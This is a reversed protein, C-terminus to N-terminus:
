GNRVERFRERFRAVTTCRRSTFPRRYLTVGKRLPATFRYWLKADDSISGDHSRRPEDVIVATRTPRSGALTYRAGLTMPDEPRQGRVDGLLSDLPAGRRGLLRPQEVPKRSGGEAYHVTQSVNLSGIHIVRRDGRVEECLPIPGSVSLAAGPTAWRLVDAFAAFAEDEGLAAFAESVPGDGHPELKMAQANWRLLEVTAAM